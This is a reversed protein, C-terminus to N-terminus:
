SWRKKRTKLIIRCGRESPAKTTAWVEVPHIKPEDYDPPPAPTSATRAAESAKVDSWPPLRAALIRRVLGLDKDPGGTTAERRGM